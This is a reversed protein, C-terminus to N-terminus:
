LVGWWTSYFKIDARNSPILDRRKKLVDKINRFCLQKIGYKTYASERFSVILIKDDDYIKPAEKLLNYLIIVYLQRYSNV